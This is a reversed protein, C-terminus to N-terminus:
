MQKKTEDFRKLFDEDDGRPFSLLCAPYTGVAKVKFRQAPFHACEVLFIEDINAPIGPFFKVIVKYKEGAAVKGTM